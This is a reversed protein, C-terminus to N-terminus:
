RSRRYVGYSTHTWWPTVGSFFNATVASVPVCHFVLVSLLPFSFFYVLSGFLSLGLAWTWMRETETEERGDRERELSLKLVSILAASIQATPLRSSMFILLCLLLSSPQSVSCSQVVAGSIIASSTAPAGALVIPFTSTVTNADYKILM